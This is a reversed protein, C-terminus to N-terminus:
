IKKQCRGKSLESQDIIDISEESQDINKWNSSAASALRQGSDGSSALLRMGLRSPLHTWTTKKFAM